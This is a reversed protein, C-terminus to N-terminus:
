CRNIVRINREDLRQYEATVNGICQDQFRNPLRAVEYWRGLYRDLDVHSVTNLANDARVSSFILLGLVVSTISTISFPSLGLASRCLNM